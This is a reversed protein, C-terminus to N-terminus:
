KADDYSVAEGFPPKFGRNGFIVWLTNFKKAWDKKHSIDEIYGDTFMLVEKADPINKEIYEFACSARTGGTSTVKYKLIDRINKETYVEVNGVKTSWCFVTIRFAKYLTSLGTIERFIDRLLADSISGSVDFGIVVDIKKQRESGALVTHQRSTIAGFQRLAHTLGASRRSVRKYTKNVKLLSVMRTRILTLYNIKPKGFSGVLDRIDEPLAGGAAQAASKIKRRSEDQIKAAEEKSIKPMAGKDYGLVNKDIPDGEGPSNMHEGPGKGNQPPQEKVLDRYIQEATWGIYKFNCYAYNMFGFEDADNFVTNKNKPFFFLPNKNKGTEGHEMVLHTNIYHDGAINFLTPDLTGARFMHMNTVHRLEHEIIIILEKITKKRYFTEIYLKQKDYQAIPLQEAKLREMVKKYREPHMGAIFEPNYYLNRGDTAATPLWDCNMVLPMSGVLAAYFPRNRLLVIKAAQIMKLAEEQQSEIILKESNEM